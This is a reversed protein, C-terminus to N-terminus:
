LYYREFTLGWSAVVHLVLLAVVGVAVPRRWKSPLGAFAVAVLLAYMGIMPFLYRAQELNEGSDNRFQWGKINVMLAYGIAGGLLAVLVPWRRVLTTWRRRIGVIGVVLAGGLLGVVRWAEGPSFGYQFWGFRGMFGQLYVQWVPYSPYGEFQRDMFPLRPLYFQWLYSILDRVRQAPSLQEAGVTFAVTNSGALANGPDRLRTLVYWPVIALGLALAAAVLPGRGLTGLRRRQTFLLWFLCWGAVALLGYGTVKSLLGIAVGVGIIAGERLGLGSRFARAVGYLLVAGGLTVAIDNNVTGSLWAFVPQLAVAVGGLLIAVRQRPMLQELFLMIFLVASAALGATVLRASVLRGEVTAGTAKAAVYPVATVYNYLPLNGGQYGASQPNTRDRGAADLRKLTRDFRDSFNHDWSPIGGVSWPVAQLTASTSVSSATGIPVTRSPPVSTEAVRETYGYHVIEDPGQFLPTLIAWSAAHVFALLVVLARVRRFWVSSAHQRAKTGKAGRWRAMRRPRTRELVSPDVTAAAGPGDAADQTRSSWGLLTGIAAALLLVFVLGLAILVPGVGAPKFAAAHTLATGVLSVSPVDRRGIADFRVLLPGRAAKRGARHSRVPPGRRVGGQGEVTIAFQVTSPGNNRICVSTLRRTTPQDFTVDVPVGSRYRSVHVRRIEGKASAQVDFAPPQASRYGPYVRLARTGKPVSLLPDAQTDACVRAGSRLVYATPSVTARTNTALVEDRSQLLSGALPLVGVLLVVAGVVLWRWHRL